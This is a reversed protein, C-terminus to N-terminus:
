RTRCGKADRLMCTPCHGGRNWEQTKGLHVQVRAHAELVDEVIKYIPGVREPSCVVYLDDHYAFLHEDPLPSEQISELAGHQGLAYLMPMLADGQEGGEGQHIVHTVGCDDSWLYQSPESYFQLVFPLVSDGGEVTSLGDLREPFLISRASDLDTLSQIAHAVCEGWIEHSFWVPSTAAEVAPTISQAITRAVWRRVIDGCVIGRVDGGLKELATLRGM